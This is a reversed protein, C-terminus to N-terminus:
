GQTIFDPSMIIQILLARLYNTNHRPADVLFDRIIVEMESSMNSAFLHINLEEILLDISNENQEELYFRIIRDRKMYTTVNADTEIQVALDSIQRFYHYIDDWNYLKFEAASYGVFRDDSPAEEPQYYYFFM